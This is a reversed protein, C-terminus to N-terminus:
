NGWCLNCPLTPATLIRQQKSPTQFVFSERAHEVPTPMGNKFIGKKVEIEKISVLPIAPFCHISGFNKCKSLGEVTPNVLIPDGEWRGKNWWVGSGLTKAKSYVSFNGGRNPPM